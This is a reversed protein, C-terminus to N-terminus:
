KLVEIMMMTTDDVRGADYSYAKLLKRLNTLFDIWPLGINEQLFSEVNDMGLMQGKENVCEFLGDTFVIIKDGAILEIKEEKYDAEPFQGLFLGGAALRTIQNGRFLLAPPHGGNSYTLTHTNMDAMAFFMTVFISNMRSIDRCLSANIKAAMEAPSQINEAALRIYAQVSAMILAAPIGKNSVDAVVVLYKGPQVEIVDYFDGGVQAAQANYTLVQMRDFHLEKEPMLMNQVQSAMELESEYKQKQLAESHLDANTIAVAAFSGLTELAFKDDENFLDEGEKNAIAIAGTIKEQTKLAIGIFSNLKTSVSGLNESFEIDDGNLILSEGTRRIFQCADEGEPTLLKAMVERSLGWSVSKERGDRDFLVVLGVEGKVLSLATEMIMPLLLDLNLVSTIVAGMRSLDIIKNIQDELKDELVSLKSELVEGLQLISNLDESM